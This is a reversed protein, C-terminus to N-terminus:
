FWLAKAVTEYREIFVHVHVQENVGPVRYVEGVLRIAMMNPNLFFQSLNVNM